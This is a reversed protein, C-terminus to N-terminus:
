GGGAPLLFSGVRSPKRRCGIGLRSRGPTTWLMDRATPVRMHQGAASPSAILTTQSTMQSTEVSLHRSLQLGMSRGFEESYMTIDQDDTTAAHQSDRHGARLTVAHVADITQKTEQTCATYDLSENPLLNVNSNLNLNLKYMYNQPHALQQSNPYTESYLRLAAAIDGRCVGWYYILSAYEISNFTM